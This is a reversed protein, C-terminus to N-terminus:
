DLHIVARRNQPERVGPGTPVMPESFGRGETTIADNPVGLRVMEAAVSAARRESLAHNYSASGVTDTHGIVLVKVAGTKVFTESAEAVVVQADATLSWKNFDFFVIFTDPAKETPTVPVVPEEPPAAVDFFYRVGLSLGHQNAELNECTCLPPAFTVEMDDFHFYRYSVFLDLDSAVEYAAQALFQYAFAYDEDDIIVTGTPFNWENEVNVGGLGAGLALEFDDTVDIDYLFNVMQSFQTTNGTIPVAGPPPSSLDFTDVDNDRWGLEFEIRLDDWQRGFAAFVAWGAEFDTEFTTSVAIFEGEQEAWNIGFEGSVYWSTPDVEAFALTPSAAAFVTALLIRKSFMEGGEM